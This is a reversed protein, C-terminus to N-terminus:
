YDAAPKINIHWQICYQRLGSAMFATRYLRVGPKRIGGSTRTGTFGFCMFNNM